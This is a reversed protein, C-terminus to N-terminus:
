RRAGSLLLGLDLRQDGWLWPGDREVSFWLRGSPVDRLNDYVEIAAIAEIPIDLSPYRTQETRGDIEYIQILPWENMMLLM